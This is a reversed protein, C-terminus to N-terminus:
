FRGLICTQFCVGAGCSLLTLPVRNARKWVYLRVDASPSASPSVSPAVSPAPPTLLTCTWRAVPLVTSGDGSAFAGNSSLRDISFALIPADEPAFNGDATGADL